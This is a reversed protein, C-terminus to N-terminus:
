LPRIQGHNEHFGLRHEASKRACIAEFKYEFRGLYTMIGDSKIRAEWANYRKHWSVGRVGSTNNKQNRSNKKNEASTVQRLNSLRNDIGNGNIHDVEGSPMCGNAYLWALRHGYYRTNDISMFRYSKGGTVKVTTGSRSGAKIGGRSVVCTFVGNDPDYHLLEKLRAQTIM